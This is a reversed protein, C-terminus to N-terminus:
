VGTSQVNPLKNTGNKIGAEVTIDTISFTNATANVSDQIIIQISQCKQRSFNVIFQYPKGISPAFASTDFNNVDVINDDYDYAVSVDIEPTGKYTGLFLFKYARAFNQIGTMRLWATKILMRYSVGNRTFISPSSNYILGNPLIGVYSGKLLATSAFPLNDEVSWTNYYYDYNLIDGEKTSFKVKNREQLLTASVITNTNYREVDAGIYSVQLSRNLLYIGKKSKFMVGLPTRVVSSPESCGVPSNILAPPTLSNNQGLLDAGEGQVFYIYDSKFIILKDDLSALETIDGGRPEINFTLAPHTSLSSGLQFSRAYQISNKNSVPVAFVRNNHLTSTSISPFPFSGLVNGSTYLVDGATSQTVEKLIEVNFATQPSVLNWPEYTNSQISLSENTYVQNITNMLYYTNGNSITGFIKITQNYRKSFYPPFTCYVTVSYNGTAPIKITKAISPQSRVIEGNDNTWEFVACFGFTGNNTFTGSSNLTSLPLVQPFDHFNNESMISNSVENLLNTSIFLSEGYSFSRIPTKVVESIEYGRVEYNFGLGSGSGTIDTEVLFPIIMRGSLSDSSVRPLFSPFSANNTFSSNAGYLAAIYDVLRDVVNLNRDVLIISCKREIYPTTNTPNAGVYPFYYLCFYCNSTTYYMQSGVFGQGLMTSKGSYAFRSDITKENTGSWTSSPVDYYFVSPCKVLPTGIDEIFLHSLFVLKNENVISGVSITQMTKLNFQTKDQRFLTLSSTGVTYINIMIGAGFVCLMTTITGSLNIQVSGLGISSRPPLTSSGSFSIDTAFISSITQLTTGTTSRVIIAQNATNTSVRNLYTTVILNGIYCSNSVRYYNGLGFGYTSLDMVNSAIITNISTIGSYTFRSEYLVMNNTTGNPYAATYVVFGTPFCVVDQVRRRAGSLVPPTYVDLDFESVTPYKIGLKTNMVTVTTRDNVSSTLPNLYTIATVLYDGYSGSVITNAGESLFSSTPINSAISYEKRGLTNLTKPLILSNSSEEYTSLSNSDLALINDGNQFLAKVASPNSTVTSTPALNVYGSSKVIEGNNIEANKLEILKGQMLKPNTKTDIGNVVDINVIQKQLAM